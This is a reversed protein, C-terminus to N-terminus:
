KISCGKKNVYKIFLPTIEKWAKANPHSDELRYNDSYFSEQKGALEQLDKLRVVIAGKKELAKLHNLYVDSDFDDEYSFYIFKTNKGWYKEIDDMAQYIHMFYFDIPKKKYLDYPILIHLSHFLQNIVPSNMYSISVKKIVLHDGQKKYHVNRDLTSINVRRIHDPIFIYIVYEPKPVIKYFENNELQYLMQHAARACHARNIIKFHTLRGLQYSFTENMKINQGYAFSCGFIVIGKKANPNEIKRYLHFVDSDDGNKETAYGNNVYGGYAISDNFFPLVDSFSIKAHSFYLKINTILSNKTEYNKAQENFM